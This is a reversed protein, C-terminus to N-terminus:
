RQYHMTLAGHWTEILAKHTYNLTPTQPKAIETRFLHMDLM